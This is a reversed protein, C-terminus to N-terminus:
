RRRAGGFSPRATSPASWGSGAGIGGGSGTQPRAAFTGKNTAAAGAGSGGAQGGTITNAKNTAASGGGTGAGQGSVANPIPQVKSYDPTEPRSRTISGNLQDGRGFSDSPPYHYTPTRDAYPRDGPYPQNALGGLAYGAFFPFWVSGFSGERDRGSVTVGEDDKLHIIPSGDAIELFTREDRQLRLDKGTAKHLAGAADQWLLAYKEGDYGLSSPQIQYQGRDRPFGSNAGACAISFVLLLPVLWVYSM